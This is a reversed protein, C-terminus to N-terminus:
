SKDGVIANADMYDDDDLQSKPSYMHTQDAGQHGFGQNTKVSVQIGVQHNMGLSVKSADELRNIKLGHINVETSKFNIM